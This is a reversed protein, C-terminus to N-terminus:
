SETLSYELAANFKKQKSSIGMLSIIKREKTLPPIHGTLCYLTCIHVHIIYTNILNNLQVKCLGLRLLM